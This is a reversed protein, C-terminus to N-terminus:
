PTATSEGIDPHVGTRLRNKPWVSEPLSLPPLCLIIGQRGSYVHPVLTAVRLQETGVSRM